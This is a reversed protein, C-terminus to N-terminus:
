LISIQKSGVSKLYSCSQQLTLAQVEDWVDNTFNCKDSAVVRIGLRVGRENVSGADSSWIRLDIQNM